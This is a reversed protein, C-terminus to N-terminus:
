EVEYDDSEDRNDRPSSPPEIRARDAETLDPFQHWFAEHEEKGIRWHLPSATPRLFACAIKGVVERTRMQRATYDASWNRGAAKAARKNAEDMAENRPMGCAIQVKAWALAEGLAVEQELEEWWEQGERHAPVPAKNALELLPRFLELRVTVYKDGAEEARRLVWECHDLFTRQRVGFQAPWRAIKPKTPKNNSM